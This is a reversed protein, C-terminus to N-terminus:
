TQDFTSPTEMWRLVASLRWGVARLGIREQRPFRGEAMMRYIAARSRGTKETVAKIRLFKDDADNM